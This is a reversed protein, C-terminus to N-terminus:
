DDSPVYGYTDLLWQEVEHGIAGEGGLLFVTRPTLRELQEITHNPAFTPQVLLVPSGQHGALASGTLADPFNLGTALYVGDTSDIREALLAATEYRHEGAIRTVPAIAALEAEVAASVAPEGGVLIIESPAIDALAAATVNPLNNVQALLVPAGEHGAVAAATLADPFNQGTAVYVVDSETGESIAVATEYRNDGFLRSIDADLGPTEAVFDELADETAQSVAPTGGLIVLNDPDLQTIAGLTLAPLRRNNVDPVLLVPQGEAAARAAGALADPFNDGSAIYITDVDAASYEGAVLASTIYRDDGLLRRTQLGVVIDDAAEVTFPETVASEWHEPNDPDGLPKLVEIQLAYTGDAVYEGDIRGDWVVAAFDNPAVSRSIFDLQSVVGLAEVPEGAENTAWATLRQTTAQQARQVLVTPVDGDALDYVIGSGDGTDSFVDYVGNWACEVGLLRDCGTLQALIPLQIDPGFAGPTLVPLDLYNVVGTYPVRVIQGDGEPTFTVWGGYALATADDFDSPGTITVTVEATSNAPVTVSEPGEFGRESTWFGWDLPELAIDIVENTHGVAFTIDEDSTNTLTLTETASTAAADRNNIAIKSPSVSVSETIASYIDVAGAGQRIVPEYFGLSPNGYWPAPEAYNQLRERVQDPTLEPEADLLLAATGAVHPASMSTGSATAYGGSEIPYASLINGGPGGIDPKFDLGAEPGYSSFSSILGGTPSPATATDGTWALTTEGAVVRADIEHGDVQQIAVVPITIQVPGEVTPNIIGPVNDYLIVAAANATQAAAAKEHFTCDGREILVATGTLDETIPVLTGNPLCTRAEPTGPDGLRSLPLSGETPPPPAATAPAFGVALDEGQGSVQFATLTVAVNDFSAVGIARHAAGPSGTAFPGYTGENGASNTVVVGAEVLADSALSTPYENWGWFAAGISMNVVDMGDTYAHELSALIVDSTTSGACGFVRYAGLTAAPAVGRISDDDPDGNGAAIGAVHTGHGQCDDPNQDPVTVPNYLNSQANANFEDGVLDIGYQVQDTRWDGHLGDSPVGDGGFVPHDIDIGTDIIGIKVGEGYIELEDHVRDAGSMGLATNILPEFDSTLLEPADVVYVPYIASVESLGALRGLDTESASVSLGNWLTTHRSEVEVEIGAGDVQRLFSNQQSTVSSVSNGEVTSPQTLEVLYRGFVESDGSITNGDVVTGVSAPVVGYEEPTGILTNEDIEDAQAALGGLASAVLATAAVGSAVRLFGTSRGPQHPKKTM